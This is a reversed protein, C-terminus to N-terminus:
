ERVLIGKTGAIMMNNMFDEFPISEAGEKWRYVKLAFTGFQVRIKVLGRHHSLNAICKRLSLEMRGNNNRTLEDGMELWEQRSKPDLRDGTLVPIMSQGLKPDNPFLPLVMVDKSIASPNPPEVLIMTDPRVSKVVYERMTGIMRDMTKNVSDENDSFIRFSSLKNDFVIHCQYKFRVPDFAELSPGLLDEPRVEDDPWLFTGTHPFVRGEAPAQQFEMIMAEKRMKKMLRHHQDGIASTMKAFKNKAMPKQPADSHLRRDLWRNLEDKTNQVQRADGWLLLERDKMHQPPRIFSGLRVGIEEFTDYMKKQNPEIDPCDKPLMFNGSPELRKRFAARALNDRRFNFSAQPHPRRPGPPKGHPHAKSRSAAQGLPQANSISPQLSGLQPGDDRTNTTANGFVQPWEVGELDYDDDDDSSESLSDAQKRKESDWERRNKIEYPIAEKQKSAMVPHHTTKPQVRGNTATPWVPQAQAVSRSSGALHSATQTKPFGRAESAAQSPTRNKQRGRRVEQWSNDSNESPSM